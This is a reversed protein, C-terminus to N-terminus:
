EGKEKRVEDTSAIKSLRERPILERHICTGQKLCMNGFALFGCGQDIVRCRYSSPRRKRKM